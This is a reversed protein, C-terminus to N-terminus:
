AKVYKYKREIRQQKQEPQAKESMDIFLFIITWSILHEIEYFWIQGVGLFIEMIWLAIITRTIENNTESFFLKVLRVAVWIVPIFYILCGILGWDAIAEAYTSHAYQSFPNWFRFQQLGIGFLPKELFYEIAFQYYLVRNRSSEESKDGLKEMRLSIDTKIYVNEYYYIVSAILLGIFLLLAIRTAWQGNNWIIRSQQLIWLSCIIIAAVLCKRSGCNIIVYLFLIMLGVSVMMRKRNKQTRYVLCFLGLDMAMGLANPNQEPGLVYGYGRLYYGRVIAFAACLVDTAIIAKLLWDFGKEENSVYCIVLCIVSFAVYTIVGNVLYEQDRAVLLGFVLSYICMVLNILVGNPFIDRINQQSRMLDYFMCAAALFISSYLIINKVGYIYKFWLIYVLFVYILFKSIKSPTIGQM